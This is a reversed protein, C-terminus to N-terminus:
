TSRWAAHDHQVGHHCIQRPLAPDTNPTTERPENVQKAKDATEEAKRRWRSQTVEAQPQKGAYYPQFVDQILLEAM